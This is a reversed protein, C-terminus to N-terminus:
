PSRSRTGPLTRPSLRSLRRASPAATLDSKVLNSFESMYQFFGRRLEPDNKNEPATIYDLIVQVGNVGTAGDTLNLASINMDPIELTHCAKYAGVLNLKEDLTMDAIVDPISALNTLKHRM